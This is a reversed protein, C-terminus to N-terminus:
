YGFRWLDLYVKAVHAWYLLIVIVAIWTAALARKKYKEHKKWRNMSGWSLGGIAMLPIVLGVMGFLVFRIGDSSYYAFFMGALLIAWPLVMLVSLILVASLAFARKRNEQMLDVVGLLLAPPQMLLVVGFLMLVHTKEMPSIKLSFAFSILVGVYFLLSFLILVFVAVSRTSYVKKDQMQM